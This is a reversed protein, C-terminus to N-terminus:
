MSGVTAQEGSSINGFSARGSIKKKHEYLLAKKKVQQNVDCNLEEPQFIGTESVQRGLQKVVGKASQLAIMKACEDVKQSHDDLLVMLREKLPCSAEKIASHTIKYENKMMINVYNQAVFYGKTPTAAFKEAGYLLAQHNSAINGISPRGLINKEHKFCPVRKKVRQNIRSNVKGPQFVDAALVRHGFKLKKNPNDALIKTCDDVKQVLNRDDNPNMAVTKTNHHKV